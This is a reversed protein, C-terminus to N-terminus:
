QDDIGAPAIRYQDPFRHNDPSYCILQVNNVRHLSYKAPNNRLQRNLIADNRQAQQLVDVRIPNEFDSPHNLFFELHPAVDEFYSTPLTAFVEILEDDDLISNEHRCCDFHCPMSRHLEAETPPLSSAVNLVEDMSTDPIQLQDFSILKGKEENKSPSPKPMTPLRSFCDALVNDKGPFYKFTPHFDELFMRWRLVRSTNLTRFTLNKHDTFVTLRGGLLMSKYERFCYVIALMEKEMTTYNKQADNLKKSWYAIPRGRQMIVAGMQYDSADTYIEFPINLDPFVMIADAAVLAKMEAFAKDCDATWDFSQKGTLKTLPALVHSRRPWMKNYFTVAGLFSRLQTQTQPRQMDLIGQVKKKWPRVGDPTMWFGLFDTEAVAWECKLPNVKCGNEELRQLVQRIKELHEEYTNSFIGVDDIYVEVELGDLIHEILAQAEDPATKLGMAMRQYAFKGFPTIITALEKSEDDLELTYYFSTLDIKTFYKYKSRRAVIDEIRPLPYIRRKLCKNLARLDSIWRVRGDKKPIIFSPSAWETPGVKKLVGQRVLKQLEKKFMEEQIKPVSYPRSHVPQSNPELELHVKHHPYLGLEGDFLRPYKALINELSQRQEPTLHTQKDAVERPTTQLEDEFSYADNFVDDDGDFPDFDDFIHFITEQQLLPLPDQMLVNQGLWKMDKADFDIIFGINFLFDRGLIVDYQCPADFVRAECGTIRKSRDFEPLYIDKLIVQRSTDFNGAATSSQASQTLVDPVCNEPLCNSHILSHSAGSDFLVKLMRTCNKNQIKKAIMLSCPSLSRYKLRSSASVKPVPVHAFSENQIWYKEEHSMEAFKVEAVNEIVM